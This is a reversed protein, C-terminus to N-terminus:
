LCHPQLLHPNNLRLNYQGNQSFAIKRNAIALNFQLDFLATENEVKERLPIQSPM